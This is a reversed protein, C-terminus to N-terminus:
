QRVSQLYLHHALHSCNIRNNFGCIPSPHSLSLSQMSITRRTISPHQSKCRPTLENSRIKSSYIKINIRGEHWIWQGTIIFQLPPLPLPCWLPLSGCSPVNRCSGVGWLM